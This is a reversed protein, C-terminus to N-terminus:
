ESIPAGADEPRRGRRGGRRRGRGGRRGRRRPRDGAPLSGPPHPGTSRALEVRMPRGQIDKTNLGDLAKKAEAETDFTVFGYGRSYNTRRERVVRAETVKGFPEFLKKLDEDMLEWKLNSCYLRANPNLDVKVEAPPAAAPAAM